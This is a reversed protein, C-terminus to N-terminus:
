EREMGNAVDWENARKVVPLNGGASRRRIVVGPTAGSRAIKGQIPRNGTHPFYAVIFTCWAARVGANGIRRQV